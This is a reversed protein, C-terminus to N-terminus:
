SLLIFKLNCYNWINNLSTVDPFVAAASGNITQSNATPVVFADLTHARGSFTHAITFIKAVTFHVRLSCESHACRIRDDSVLSYTSTNARGRMIHQLRHSVIPLQDCLECRFHANRKNAENCRPVLWLCGCWKRLSWNKKKISLIIVDLMLPCLPTILIISTMSWPSKHQPWLINLGMFFYRCFDGNRSFLQMSKSKIM